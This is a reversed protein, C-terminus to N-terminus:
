KTSVTNLKGVMDSAYLVAASLPRLPMCYFIDEIVPCVTSKEAMPRCSVIERSKEFPKRYIYEVNVILIAQRSLTKHV